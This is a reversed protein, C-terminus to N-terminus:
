EDEAIVTAAVVVVVAVVVGRPDGHALAYGCLAVAALGILHLAVSALRKM